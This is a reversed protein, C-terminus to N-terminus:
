QLLDLWTTVDPSMQRWETAGDFGTLGASPFQDHFMKELTRPISGDTNSLERLVTFKFPTSKRLQSFRQKVNNTIGIKIMLDCESLLAYLVGPKGQSYGYSACGSCRKGNIFDVCMPNWRGHQPCEIIVRTYQNTYDDAWGVFEYGDAAALETLQQERTIQPTLQRNSNRIIACKPCRVNAVTFHSVRLEFNGHSSCRVTIKSNVNIYEGVWGVFEYGDTMAMEIIQKERDVKSM